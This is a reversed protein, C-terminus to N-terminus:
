LPYLERTTSTIGKGKTDLVCTLDWTEEGTAHQCGKMAATRRRRQQQQGQGRGGAQERQLKPMM